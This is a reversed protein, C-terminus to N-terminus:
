WVSKENMRGYRRVFSSVTKINSKKSVSVVSGQDSM